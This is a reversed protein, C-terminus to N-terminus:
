LGARWVELAKVMNRDIWDEFRAATDDQSELYNIQFMEDSITVLDGIDREGEETETRRFFCITAGIIGRFEHGVSHFSVLVEAQEGTRLVLRVWSHYEGFNAFYQLERATEIVQHRFYHGRAGGDPETDVRFQFDDSFSGIDVRLKDRIAHLREEAISGLARTTQKAREWAEYIARRRKELLERAASIVHDVQHRQKVQGAISLANVFTRKLISSTFSVFAKLDGHDASELADIYRSRDDETITLPFWDARILVLSALARAVRGNGDQFPHVQTFAHHLWASRVEPALSRQEHESHLKLLREMELAVHEPPCYEHVSGDPRTPNNPQKKYDGRILPVQVTRGLSNVATTVEQHRTLVSHLEKIFGITLHREGKVAAFVVEVAEEHDRIMAAVLEPTKDTASSPILSADIGKEILLQTVGRDLTYVREIIGTEVAWQRKLQDNFTELTESAALGAKQEIWVSALSRLESNALM